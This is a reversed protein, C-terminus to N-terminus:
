WLNIGLVLITSFARLAHRRWRTRVLLLDSPLYTTWLGAASGGPESEASKMSAYVKKAMGSLAPLKDSEKTLRLSSYASVIHRWVDQFSPDPRIAADRGNILNYIPSALYTKGCECQQHTQCEFILELPTYHLVRSSLFREQFCWARELLPFHSLGLNQPEDLTASNIPFPDLQSYIGHIAQHQDIEELSQRVFPDKGFVSHPKAAVQYPLYNRRKFIGDSSDRASMAAITIFAHSYVLAMRPLYAEM